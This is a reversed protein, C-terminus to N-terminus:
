GVHEDDEIRRARSACRPVLPFHASPEINRYTTKRQIGLDRHPSQAARLKLIVVAILALVPM